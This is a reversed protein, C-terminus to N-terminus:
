QGGSGSVPGGGDSDNNNGAGGDNDNGSSHGFNFPWPLSIRFRREATRHRQANGQVDGSGGASGAGGGSSSGSDPHNGRLRHSEYDPDDTPLEHRCVPCSNHLELWPLICESHFIHKCPLQKGMSGLEFENMCVACQASDSKVLEDTFKINLLRDIAKKSAPPTGHRNPDNEALQQILQELGPGLFYDGFNSPLRLGPESPHNEIVFQINAGSARLNQLHNQLFEFPNFVRTEEYVPLLVNSFNRPDELDITTSSFVVPGRGHAAVGGFGSFPGFASPFLASFPDIVPTSFPNPNRESPPPPPTTELEELFGGNCNPCVLDSNPSPTQTVTRNCQYCFYAQPTAVAIGATSM